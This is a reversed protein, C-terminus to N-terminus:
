KRITVFVIESDKARKTIKNGLLLLTNDSDMLIPNKYNIAWEDNALEQFKSINRSSFDCTLVSSESKLGSTTKVAKKLESNLASKAYIM